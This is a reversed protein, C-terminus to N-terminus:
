IRKWVVKALNTPRWQSGDPDHNTFWSSYQCRHLNRLKQPSALCREALENVSMVDSEAILEAEIQSHLNNLNM